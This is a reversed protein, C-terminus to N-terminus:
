QDSSAEKSLPPTERIQRLLRWMSFSVIEPIGQMRRLIEAGEDPTICQWRRFGNARENGRHTSVLARGHHTFGTIFGVAWHDSSDGDHYKTALVYKGIQSKNSM